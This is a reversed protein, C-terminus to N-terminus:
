KRGDDKKGDDKKVDAEVLWRELDPGTIKLKAIVKGSKDYVDVHGGTLDSDPWLDQEKAKESAATELGEIREDLKTLEKEMRDRLRTAKQLDQSALASGKPLPQGTPEWKGGDIRQQVAKLAAALQLDKLRDVIWDPDSWKEGERAKASSGRIADEERRVKTMAIVQEDTMPVYFGATPDVGWETSNEDRQICRGSPLYYRQETFKLQGSGSPLSIVAQVLGKGFSRTGVAIARNNEVLAGSLVESASASSGNILIAIPFQPLTGEARAKTIEEPKARGRTSVITGSELFLDAIDIADQLVGGPNGRLDLILGGVGDKDAGISLLAEKFEEASTPTFQTLRVYAIKRRPDVFYQWAGKGGDGATDRHFGKVTKAIVRERNVTFPLRQGSREVVLSVPRGEEGTLMAVCKDASLGMTSKGDIEVIRDEALIGARFAPTDELPTVVTLYGDRVVVQVGIGVFDGTLEKTFERTDAAPVYITYPDKLAELMGNIAGQQMAKEDPDTVYRHSVITQVEVLPDFFSYPSRTLALTSGVVALGLIAVLALRFHRPNV